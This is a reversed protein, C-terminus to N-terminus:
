MTPQHTTLPLSLKGHEPDNALEDEPVTGAATGEEEDAEKDAAGTCNFYM